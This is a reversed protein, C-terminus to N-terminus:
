LGQTIVYRAPFGFGETILPSGSSELFPRGFMVPEPDLYQPLFGSQRHPPDAFRKWVMRGTPLLRQGVYKMERVLEKRPVLFGSKQCYGMPEVWEGDESPPPRRM